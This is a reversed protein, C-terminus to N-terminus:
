MFGGLSLGHDIRTQQQDAGFVVTQDHTCGAPPSHQLLAVGRDARRQAQGLQRAMGSGPSFIRFYPATTPLRVWDRGPVVDM